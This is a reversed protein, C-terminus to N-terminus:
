GFIEDLSTATLIRESWRELTTTDAAEVRNVIQDTLQGFKITLLHVLVIAQGEALGKAYGKKFGKAYGRAELQEATTM